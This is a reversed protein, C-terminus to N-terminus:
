QEKSPRSQIRINTNVDTTYFCIKFNKNRFINQRQSMKQRMLNEPEQRELEWEAM